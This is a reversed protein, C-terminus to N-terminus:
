NAQYVQDNEIGQIDVKESGHLIGIYEEGNIKGQSLLRLALHNRLETNPFVHIWELSLAKSYGEIGVFLKQNNKLLENLIGATNKQGSADGHLDQIHVVLPYPSQKNEVSSELIRGDQEPIAFKFAEKSLRFFVASAHLNIEEANGEKMKSYRSTREEWFSAQAYPASLTSFLFSGLILLSIKKM